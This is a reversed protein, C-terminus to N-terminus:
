SPLGGERPPTLPFPLPNPAPGDAVFSIMQGNKGWEATGTLLISDGGAMALAAAKVVEDTLGQVKVQKGDGTKIVARSGDVGPYLGVVKGLVAWEGTKREDM